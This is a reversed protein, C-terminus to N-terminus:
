LGKTLFAELQDVTNVYQVLLDKRVVRERVFHYDIEIHKTQGHFIPNSALALSSINDSYITPTQLLPICLDCLM